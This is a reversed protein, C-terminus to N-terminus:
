GVGFGASGLVARGKDGTIFRIWGAALRDDRADATVAAWYTNPSAEAGPIDLGAVKGHSAVVDTRYVLGADAEGAAVKTVVAKVDVEESVPRRQIGDAALLARAAAGCPATAVCTLYDVGAHDLDSFSRVGTRGAPVALVLVNTAFQVPVEGKRLGGGSLTQDMTRRDATALVDGPAHEAAMRALTASSDLVLQVDVGPHEGEFEAALDTFTGTLSSAALVTLTRDGAGQKARDCGSVTATLVMALVTAFVLAAIKRV